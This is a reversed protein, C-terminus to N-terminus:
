DAKAHMKEEGFAFLESVVIPEIEQRSLNHLKRCLQAHRMHAPVLKVELLRIAQRFSNRLRAENIEDMRVVRLRCAADDECRRIVFHLEWGDHMRFIDPRRLEMRFLALM